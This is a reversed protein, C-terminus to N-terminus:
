RVPRGALVQFGQGGSLRAKEAELYDLHRELDRVKNRSVKLGSAGSSTEYSQIGVAKKIADKAAAIQQDM